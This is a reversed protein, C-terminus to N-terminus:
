LLGLDRACAVAETRNQAQLKNFIRLNHGKVTSLSIFLKKSIEENSLGLSVLRLVELERDTLAEILGPICPRYPHSFNSDHVMVASLLKQIYIKFPHGPDLALKEILPRLHVGENLFLQVYGEPEALFLARELSLEAQNSDEQELHLLTQVVLIELMSGTRKQNEAAHLMKDLMEAVGSLAHEAICVRALLLHDFEGLYRLEDTVSLGQAQVWRKAKDLRGQKLFIRAKLAEIPRMDPIPNKVYANKADELFSLALDYDAEIEKILAQGIKWRYAWDVLTTK